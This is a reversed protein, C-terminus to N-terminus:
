ASAPAASSGAASRCTSSAPSLAYGVLGAALAFILVFGFPEDALARLAGQRDEPQGGGGAAVRVAIVAVLLYLCGKAVLGFRAAREVWPGRAASEVGVGV